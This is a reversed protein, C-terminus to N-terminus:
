IRRLVFLEGAGHRVRPFTHIQAKLLYRSAPIRKSFFYADALFPVAFTTENEKTHASVYAAEELLVPSADVGPVLLAAALLGTLFLPSFVVCGAVVGQLIPARSLTTHPARVLM